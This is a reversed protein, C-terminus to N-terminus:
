YWMYGVTHVKCWNIYYEEGGAAGQQQAHIMGGWGKWEGEGDREKRHWAEYRRKACVLLCLMFLFFYFFFDSCQIYKRTGPLFTKREWMEHQDFLITLLTWTHPPCLSYLFDNSHYLYIINYQIVYEPIDLSNSRSYCFIVEQVAKNM